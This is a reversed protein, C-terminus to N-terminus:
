AAAHRSAHAKMAAALYETFGPALAEYRARFDAHSLYLDALGAYADPPCPRNWMIGVWNRHRNLVAELAASDRSVNQRCAEALNTEIEALEELMRAKEADTLASLKRKSIDIREKMDGGYRAILWQEYGSQQEPSFGNFLDTHQMPREGNLDAITRDITRVLEAYRQAQRELRVRHARLAELRDFGPRDLLEAIEQLSIGLERHFLIQQLRLVEPQEYYRYRNDGLRAPKLLGIEDYHHLTRVSVGSIRALQKVTYRQM